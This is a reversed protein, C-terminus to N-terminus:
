CSKQEDESVPQKFDGNSAGHTNNEPQVRAQDMPTMSYGHDILSQHTSYHSIAKLLTSICFSFFTRVQKM